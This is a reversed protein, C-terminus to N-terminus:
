LYLFLLLNKTCSKCRELILFPGDSTSNLTILLLYVREGKRKRENSNALFFKVSLSVISVIFHMHFPRHITKRRLKKKKKKKVFSVINRRTILEVCWSFCPPGQRTPICPKVTFLLLILLSLLIFIIFHDYYTTIATITIIITIIPM